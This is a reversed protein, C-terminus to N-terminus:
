LTTFGISFFLSVRGKLDPMSILLYLTSDGCFCQSDQSDPFAHKPNQFPDLSFVECPSFSFNCKPHSSLFAPPDADTLTLIASAYAWTLMPSLWCLSLHADTLTLMPSPWCLWLHADTLTLMPSPWCLCLHADTLTLMPSTWCLCLHANTLTLKPAPSCQQNDGYVKTPMLSTLMPVPPYQHPDNNTLTLMPEPSRRHSDADTLTLWLHAHM